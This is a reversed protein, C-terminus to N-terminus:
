SVLIVPVRSYRFSSGVVLLVGFSLRFLLFLLGCGLAFLKPDFDEPGIFVLRQCFLLFLLPVSTFLCVARDM